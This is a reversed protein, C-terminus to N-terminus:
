TPTKFGKDMYVVGESLNTLDCGEYKKLFKLLESKLIKYNGLKLCPLIGMNILEYVKNKSCHIFKCVDGVTMLEDDLHIEDM